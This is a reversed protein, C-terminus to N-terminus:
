PLPTVLVQTFVFQAGLGTLLALQVLVIWRSKPDCRLMMGGTTLVMAATAVPFPIMGRGLIFVYGCLVAFCALVIGPRKIFTAGPVLVKSEQVSTANRAADLLVWGLLAAVIVGVYLTFNPLDTQKQAVVAEFQGVTRKMRQKFSDGEDFTTEMRLRSLEGRVGKNQLAQQLVSSLQDIVNPPTGKPAWWYNANTLTVPIGMEVATPVEPISEHRQSGLVAIARVNQDPPTGEVGRFDLYESLSFIGAELHGGLIKSYRDAGGGASVISLDAGPWARELQLTTFYAPAGKNAGFRVERPTAKAQELLDVINQLPSDERVMIVMSMEATLAIPEFAEPGYDVTGALKATIIANHHCLIKYGDPAANKVQRSGITGIGGPQNVIVLPQPLLQEAVIGKQMIRVFTDSGGGAKYPVVVHIPRNPYASSEDQSLYRNWWWALLLVITTTALLHWIVSLRSM